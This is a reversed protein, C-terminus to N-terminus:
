VKAEILRLLGTLPVVAWDPRHQLESSLESLAREYLFIGFLQRLQDESPPLFPAAGLHERYAALYVASVWRHWYRAWPELTPIDEPRLWGPTKGRGSEKGLMASWAAYHFSRIMAAVDRLPSRKLRRETITQDPDGEFDIFVFDKGTSLVQALHFDGHIRIRQAAFRESLLVHFRNMVTAQQDLLKQALPEADPPLSPAPAPAAPPAPGSARLSRPVAPPPLFSSSTISASYSTFSYGGEAGCARAVVYACSVSAAPGSPGAATM